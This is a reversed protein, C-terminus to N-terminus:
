GWKILNTSFRWDNKCNKILKRGNERIKILKKGIKGVNTSNSDFKSHNKLLKKGLELWSKVRKEVNKGTRQDM